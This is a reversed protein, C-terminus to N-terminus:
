LDGMDEPQESPPVLGPVAARRSKDQAVAAAQTTEKEELYLDTNDTSNFEKLSVLFDRLQNKFAPLDKNIDLLGNVYLRLENPNLNPFATSLLNTIFARLWSRNNMDPTTAEPPTWLPAKIKGSEVAIFLNQLITAQLKFGAKHFTDTLVVFIDQVITRFYGTYFADSIEPHNSINVLLENLIQLGTEAAQRETHKMAWIISDMIMKFQEPSLTFFADFCYNNIARVLSFFHIRHDPFDTLNAKIMDLTPPFVHVFIGPINGTLLGKLTNIVVVMLSLVQPDRADPVSSQYDPLMADLLPPVFNAYVFQPDQSLEIFAEILKLVEQKVIRMARVETTRAAYQGGTSVATCVAESYFKYINLMDLYIKALQLLFAHGLSKAVATNTQLINALFKMTDPQHLFQVSQRAQNMLTIWTSNPAAMLKNILTEKATPDPQCAVVYSCAQYFTQVQQPQLDSIITSISNLIEDILPVNEGANTPIFKRRCKRVIKMFTDCAMDQVGPHHEHMFEFLKNIVTKLFKWHARLFRPYQGVVYMINSAIVAKNDKGRTEECMGLLDRIVTVLFRKESEEDVAGSISGIAWCLSNLTQRDWQPSTCQISLASLMIEHMDHSDLHTLYVMADRMVKYLATVETDKIIERIVEGNDNETILVEEPKAMKSILCRRVHSLIPVYAGARSHSMASPQVQALAAPVEHYLEIALSLWYELTIKFIEEDEVYSIKCLLEHAYINLTGHDSTEILRRNAKFYGCLFLALHRIFQADATSASAYAKPIDTSPPIMQHLATMVMEFLKVLTSGTSEVTGTNAAISGIETLCELTINRFIATPFFKTCLTEILKSDFIYGTPIWNLFRLLTELTSHLLSPSRANALSFWCLEYILAFDKNFSNKLENIKVQTMQGSSFDFVEESLLKLIQLNNECLSENTKSSSVIDPIFSDWKRPWEQKVIQVLILDLKNILM